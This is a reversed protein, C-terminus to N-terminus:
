HDWYHRHALDADILLCYALNVLVCTGGRGLRREPASEGGCRRNALAAAVVDVPEDDEDKRRKTVDAPRLLRALPFRGREDNM